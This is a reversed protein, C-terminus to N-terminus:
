GSLDVPGSSGPSFFLSIESRDLSSMVPGFSYVIHASAGPALTVAAAGMYASDSDVVVGQPFSIPCLQAPYGADVGCDTEYGSKSADTADMVFELGDALGTAPDDFELLPEAADSPNTVIVSEQLFDHGPSASRLWGQIILALPSPLVTARVVFRRGDVDTLTETPLTTSTTTTTPDAATTRSPTPDGGNARASVTPVASTCGQLTLAASVAVFAGLVFRSVCDGRGPAKRGAGHDLPGTV